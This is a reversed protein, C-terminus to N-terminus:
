YNVTAHAHVYPGDGTMLEVYNPWVWPADDPATALLDRYQVLKEATAERLSARISETCEDAMATLIRGRASPIVRFHHLGYESVAGVLNIVFLLDRKYNIDSLFNWVCQQEQKTKAPIYM